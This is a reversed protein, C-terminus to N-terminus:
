SKKTLGFYGKFHYVGGILNYYRGLYHDPDVMRIKDLVSRTLVNKKQKYDLMVVKLHDLEACEGNRVSFHGFGVSGMVFNQGTRGSFRKKHGIWRFNPIMGTLMDVWWEGSFSEIQPQSGDIFIKDLETNNKPFNMDNEQSM